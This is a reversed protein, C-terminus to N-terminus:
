GADTGATNAWPLLLLPSAGGSVSSASTDTCSSSSLEASSKKKGRGGPVAVWYSIPNNAIVHFRRVTSPQPQSPKRSGTSCSPEQAPLRNPVTYFYFVVPLVLEHPQHSTSKIQYREAALSQTEHRSAATCPMLARSQLINPASAPKMTFWHLDAPDPRENM